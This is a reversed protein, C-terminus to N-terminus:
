SVKKLCDDCIGNIVISHDKVEGNVKSYLSDLLDLDYDADIDYLKHCKECLFHYHKKATKDYVFGDNLAIKNVLGMDELIKLNRYITALSINHNENVINYLQEASIHEDCNQIVEYIIDRQKSKRYNM